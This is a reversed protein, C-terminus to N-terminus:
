NGTGMHRLMEKFSLEQESGTMLDKVTVTRAAAEKDGVILAYRFGKKSAYELNKSPNRAMLDTSTGVGLARLTKTIELAFTQAKSNGEKGVSFVYTNPKRVHTTFKELKVAEFIVDLGFSIGVAPIRETKGAFKGIMDDYRGGAAISSTITSKKLYAEFVTGTYYNLGRALSPDVQVVDACGLRAALEIVKRLEAVGLLGEESSVTEELRDLLEANTGQLNLFALAQTATAASIGKQELEAKVGNPGIKELKDISLMAGAAKEKPIGAASLIGSLVNRNNVKIVFKKSFWKNLVTKALSLIEADAVSQASGVIDADCQIFERYRGTKLPGDRWVPAIQYRKFPMPMRPNNAVVRCLPM